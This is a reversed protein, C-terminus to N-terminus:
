LDQLPSEPAKYDLFGWSCSARRSGQRVWGGGVMEWTSLSRRSMSQGCKVCLESQGTTIERRLGFLTKRDIGGLLQTLFLGWLPGHASNTSWPSLEDQTACLGALPWGSNPSSSVLVDSRCLAFDTTGVPGSGLGVGMM